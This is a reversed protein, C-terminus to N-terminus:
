SRAPGIVPLDLLLPELEERSVVNDFRATIRGDAGIVFVWPEQLDGDRLVWETAAPNLDNAQFDRWIEVHIFSARDAYTRGLEEVMDTIPGCFRSVCYVPTAFVVVAPRGADLAQAITTRHLDPDPVEGDAGARSDVAAKPADASAITLNETPLAADGPAPVAHEELVQFAGRGRREKGEVQATVEMQWFGARDFARRASYVGRETGGVLRPESPPPSPVPAGAVPLFSAEVPPGSPQARSGPQGTGLYSFHMTVSGYGLLRQDDTLVGAIVRTPPGVALDYSAVQVVLDQQTASPDPAPAADDDSSSCAAALLAATVLLVVAYPGGPPAARTRVPM